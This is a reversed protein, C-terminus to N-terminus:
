LAYIAGRENIEYLLVEEVVMAEVSVVTNTGMAMIGAVMGIVTIPRVILATAMATSVIKKRVQTSELAVGLLDIAIAAEMM